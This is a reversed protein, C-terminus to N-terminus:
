ATNDFLRELDTPSHRVFVLGSDFIAYVNHLPKVAIPGSMFLSGYM